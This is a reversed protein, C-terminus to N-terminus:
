DLLDFCPLLSQQTSQNETRCEEYLRLKEADRGLTQAATRESGSLETRDANSGIQLSIIKSIGSFVGDILRVPTRAVELLESPRDANYSVLIGDKFTNQYSTRSMFGARQPVPSIAGFQPLPVSLTERLFWGEIDGCQPAGCYSVRLGVNVQPRYLIGEVPAVLDSSALGTSKAGLNTIDIKIGLCQVDKNFDNIQEQRALDVIAVLRKPAGDCPNRGQDLRLGGVGYGALVALEALIDGTRDVAVIDTSTLLGNTSIEIKHKDDRFISHKPDIRFAFDPDPAMPMLEISFLSNTGQGALDASRHTIMAETAKAAAAKTESEKTKAAVLAAELKKLDDMLMDRVPVNDAIRVITAKISAIDTEIRTRAAVAAEFAAKAGNQATLLDSAKPDTKVVTLKVLQRPLYYTLGPAIKAPKDVTAGNIQGVPVSTVTACGGLLTLCFAAMLVQKENMVNGKASGESVGVARSTHFFRECITFLLLAPM